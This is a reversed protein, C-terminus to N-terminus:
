EDSEFVEGHLKQDAFRPSIVIEPLTSYGIVETKEILTINIKILLPALAGAEWESIWEQEGDEDEYFYEFSLDSVNESILIQEVEVDEIFIREDNDFEVLEDEMARFYDAVLNYEDIEGSAELRLTWWYLEGDQHFAPYPAIFSIQDENGFFGTVSGFEQTAVREFRADSLHRRLYQALLYRQEVLDQRESVKAWTKSSLRLAGSILAAMLAVILLAIQLEVLTFGGARPTAARM